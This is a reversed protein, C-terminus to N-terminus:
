NVNNSLGIMIIQNRGFEGMHVYDRLRIHLSAVTEFVIFLDADCGYVVVAGWFMSQM